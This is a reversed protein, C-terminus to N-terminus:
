RRQMISSSNEIHNEEDIDNDLKNLQKEQEVEQQVM